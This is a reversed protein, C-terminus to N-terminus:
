VLSRDFTSDEPRTGKLRFQKAPRKSAATKMEGIEEVIGLDLVKRRFSSQDIETGMVQEYVSHMEGLTFVKSLLHVPLTSYAGKGRLRYVATALIRDHDFPLPPVKDVPILNLDVRSAELVAHPVLALYAVGVSWGRPDRNVSGFTALQEVYIDRIGAKQRLIRAAADELDRDEEAHVFGGVLAPRGSFPEKDRVPLAVHLEGDVLTLLVIDVTTFPREFEQQAATPASTM